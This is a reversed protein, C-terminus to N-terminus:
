IEWINQKSVCRAEIIENILGNFNDIIKGNNGITEEPYLRKTTKAKDPKQVITCNQYVTNNSINSNTSNISINNEKTEEKEKKKASNLLDIVKQKNIKEM